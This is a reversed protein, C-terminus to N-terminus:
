TDLVLFNFYPKEDTMILTTGDANLYVTLSVEKNDDKPEIYERYKGVAKNGYYIYTPM